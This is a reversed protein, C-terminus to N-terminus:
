AEGLTEFVAASLAEEPMKGGWVVSQFAPYFRDCENVAIDLLDEIQEENIAQVGKLPLTHRFLLFSEESCLDFHGLWLKENVMALLPYLAAYSPKPVKGDFAISVVMADLEETWRFWLRYNCAASPVEAILENDTPRDYPWDRGLLVDEAVDLPHSARSFEETLLSTM